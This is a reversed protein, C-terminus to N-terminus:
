EVEVSHIQLFHRLVKGIRVGALEEVGALM